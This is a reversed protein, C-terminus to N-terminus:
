SISTLISQIISIVEIDSKTFANLLVLDPYKAKLNEDESIHLEDVIEQLASIAQSARGRRIPGEFVFPTTVVAITKIGLDKAKKAVDVIVASGTQGGLGTVLILVKADEFAKNINEEPYEKAYHFCNTEPNQKSLQKIVNCGATGIGLVSINTKM